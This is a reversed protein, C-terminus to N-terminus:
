DKPLKENGSFEDASHPLGDDTPNYLVGEYDSQGVAFDAVKEAFRLYKDAKKLGSIFREPIGQLGVMAGVIGGTLTARAMNNGGSNIASLVAMEYDNPYRFCLYYASPLLHTAQCDLGFARCFKAASINRFAPDLAVTGHKPSDISDFNRIHKMITHDDGLKTMYSSLGSLPVGNIIAQVFLIYTIQHGVLYNEQFFLRIDSQAIETLAIPDRYAAALVVGRMAGEAGDTPSTFTEDEWEVGNLRAKRVIRVAEDTWVGAYPDGPEGDLSALFADIRGSFDRRNYGGNVAVSELLMAMFQATQSGDGARLGKAHRHALVKAWASISELKPDVYDDIWPGFDEALAGEKYYWQCGVGLADGILAGLIAGCIRDKQSVDAPYSTVIEDSM